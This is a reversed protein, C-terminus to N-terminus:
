NMRESQKRGILKYLISKGKEILPLSWIKVSTDLDQPAMQKTRYNIFNAYANLLCVRTLSDFQKLEDYSASIEAINKEKLMKLEKFKAFITVGKMMQAEIITGDTKIAILILTGSRIKKPNKGITVPALLRLRHFTKSFNKIQKLGLLGQFLFALVLVIGFYILM